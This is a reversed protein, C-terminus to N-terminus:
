VCGALLHFFAITPSSPFAHEFDGVVLAEGCRLLCIADAQPLFVLGPVLRLLQLFTIVRPYDKRLLWLRGLLNHFFYGVGYRYLFFKFKARDGDARRNFFFAEYISDELVSWCDM